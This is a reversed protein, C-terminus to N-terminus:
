VVLGRRIDARGAGGSGCRYADRIVGCFLGAVLTARHMRSIVLLFSNCWGAILSVPRPLLAFASCGDLRGGPM